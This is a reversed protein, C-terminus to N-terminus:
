LPGINTLLTTLSLKAVDVFLTGTLVVILDIDPKM